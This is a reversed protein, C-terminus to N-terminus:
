VDIEISLLDPITNPSLHSLEESFKADDWDGLIIWERVSDFLYEPLFEPYLGHLEEDTFVFSTKGDRFVGSKEALSFALFSCLYPQIDPIGADTMHSYIRYFREMSTILSRLNQCKGILAGRQDRYTTDTGFLASITKEHQLLFNRYEEKGWDRREILRHIIKAYDLDIYVTYAITKERAEKITTTETPHLADYKEGTSIVITHFKRNECYDNIAGFLQTLGLTTCNLDDFVLVVKKIKKTHVDEVLPLVSVNDVFSTAVDVVSGVTPNFVKIVANLAKM